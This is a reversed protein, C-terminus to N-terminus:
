LAAALMVSGLLDCPLEWTQLGGGGGLAKGQQLGLCHSSRSTLPRVEKASLQQRLLTVKRAQEEAAKDADSCKEQSQRLSVSLAERQAEVEGLCEM